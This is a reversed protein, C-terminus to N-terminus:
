NKETENEKIECITEYIDMFNKQYRRAELLLDSYTKVYINSKEFLEIAKLTAPDDSINNSIIYGEIRSIQKPTKTEVFAVYEFIQDLQKKTIKVSPRKLEIIHLVGSNNSCLFDIRRDSTELKEDPFHEKLLASYKVEREFVTMKPDLLWPFKELFKQMVKTESADENIYKEFENITAIRGRAIKAYEKAEVTSWDTLLKIANEDDLVDMNELQQTFEQFGQFSYMDQISSIYNRATDTDISDNMIIASTLKKALPQETVNLSNLWEGIDIGKDAISKEKERKRSERWKNQTISVLKELFLRLKELDDNNFNDWALSKRDTSCNDIQNDEDIFDVDFAGFMYQFFNDNGRDNFTKGEQVLKGRSYLIIGQQEKTLPTLSTLIKGEIKKDMAFKYLEDTADFLNTFDNPFDWSFQCKSEPVDNKNILLEESDNIHVIFNADFVKFRSLLNEKLGVLDFSSNREIEEITITTGNPDDCAENFEIIEPYYESGNAQEIKDYSMSFTNKLNNKVTSITIEKGIGFMSLKGLGKKGLVPRGGVSFGSNLESRRNRGVKLFCSNLEEFSMGNGDDKVIITKKPTELMEIYVNKADADYANSVLEAIMPPITTYLKVGLHNFINMDFTVKLKNENNESM